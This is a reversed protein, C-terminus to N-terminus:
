RGDASLALPGHDSPGQGRAPRSCLAGSPGSWRAADRALIGVVAPLGFGVLEGATVVVLWRRWLARRDM